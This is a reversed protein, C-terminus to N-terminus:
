SEEKSDPQLASVASRLVKVKVQDAIRLQISDGEIGVITGFLGGTTVVKDGNKLANIMEQTKKQRRQAPLILLVYFIGMIALIPLLQLLSNGGAGQAMLSLNQQLFLLSM